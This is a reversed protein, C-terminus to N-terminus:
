NGKKLHKSIFTITKEWADEAENPSYNTETPNAFAHGVAPYIYIENEIELQELVSKFEKM